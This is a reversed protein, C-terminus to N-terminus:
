YRETVVGLSSAKIFSLEELFQLTTTDGTVVVGQIQLDDATIEGDSGSINKFVRKFEGQYRTQYQQGHKLGWIFQDIPHDYTEGNENYAKIGYATGESRIKPIDLVTTEGRDVQLTALSSEKEEQNLDDVWYWAITIDKPIIENVEELSYSRDFSLAMEMIKSDGLEALLSLDNKYEKYQIFPYFFIMERHGLENYRQLELDEISWSQGLILPSGSGIWNGYGNNFLGYSYENHGTYVLKGEILKYSSYSNKGSLMGHYRSIKGIYQNPASINNFSSVAIQMPSELKYNYGRIAISGGVWVVIAVLASILLTRLISQWKAKRIVNKLNFKVDQEFITDLDKEDSNSKIDKNDIM